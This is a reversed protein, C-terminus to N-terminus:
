VGDGNDSNFKCLRFYVFLFKYYLTTTTTTTTTTTMMMMM